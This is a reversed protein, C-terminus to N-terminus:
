AGFFRYFRRLQAQADGLSIPTFRLPHQAPCQALRFLDLPHLWGLLPYGGMSQHDAQLIIPQGDPPVQIAGRTLPLSQLRRPPHIPAGKLRAGMRDSANDLQWDQAFFAQLQEEEFEGADGGTIVRLLAPASYDPWFPWPVSAAGPLGLSACALRDGAALPEGGGRLGGCGVRVHCSVSGLVAPAQFGGAAALYARQGARAFGLRLRQGARVAFRSWGPLPREDLHAPLQAGTLALWSDVECLLEVDGLAIELLPTGWANGLLRNAWAAAKVDLPGSAAIGQHLWGHRGGDQLLSLPGPRLVRLGSM